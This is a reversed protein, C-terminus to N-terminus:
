PSFLSSNKLRIKIDKEKIGDYDSVAGPDEGGHGPDIIVTKQAGQVATVASAKDRGLNFSFIIVSLLLILAVLAINNKRVLIIM